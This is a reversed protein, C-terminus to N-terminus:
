AALRAMVYVDVLKGDRFAYQRLTGEVAFGFKKYLAIAPENDTYVELEIRRVALWREALDIGATLLASGVGQRRASSKVAMGLTAAHRRRVNKRMEIGLQGLVEEARCAVLSFSGEPLPALRKQWLSLSPFPL